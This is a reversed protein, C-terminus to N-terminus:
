SQEKKGKKEKWPPSPGSAVCTQIGGKHREKGRVVRAVGARSASLRTEPHPSETTSGPFWISRPVIRTTRATPGQHWGPGKKKKRSSRGRPIASCLLFLHDPRIFPSFFFFFPFFRPMCLTSRSSRSRPNAPREGHAVTPGRKRM